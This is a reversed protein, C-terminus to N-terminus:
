RDIQKEILKGSVDIHEALSLCVETNKSKPARLVRQTAHFLRKLDEEM